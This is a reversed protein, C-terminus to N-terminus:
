KTFHTVVSTAIVHKLSPAGLTVALERLRRHQPSLCTVDSDGGDDEADEKDEDCNEDDDEDPLSDSEVFLSIVIIFIIVVLILIFLSLPKM